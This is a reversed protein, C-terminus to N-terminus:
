QLLIREFGTNSRINELIYFKEFIRWEEGKKSNEKKKPM